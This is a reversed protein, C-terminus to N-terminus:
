KNGNSYVFRAVYDGNKIYRQKIKVVDGKSCPITAGTSASTNSWGSFNVLGNTMNQMVLLPQNATYTNGINYGVTFWGDDPATYEVVASDAGLVIDDYRDSPSAYSSILNKNDPVVNAIKEEVRGANILNANQVTEGVYYYLFLNESALEIGSNEAESTIGIAKYFRKGVDGSVGVDSGLAPNTTAYLGYSGSITNSYLSGSDTGNTLGLAKGNGVVSNGSALKSKIPLRFTEDSTNIVFDYDTYEDTSLKVSLGRKTYSTGSPLEVTTGETVEANQEVQLAEFVTVYESKNNFQGQSRLWSVNYLPAETYKCDLLSYPNNLEITNIIEAETEQGTAVQIFYKLTLKNTSNLIDAVIGSNEANQTVGISGTLSTNNGAGGTSINSGITVSNFTCSRVGSWDQGGLGFGRETTGNTLGLVKGNGVVPVEDGIAGIIYEPYNPLRVTSEDEAIVFKDVFGGINLTKEAQWNEETTFLDPSISKIQKLRTLFAQTNANIAVVQGNLIRRLGKSEDVFVSIGIDCIELGAGSNQKIVKLGTDSLNDLDVDLVSSPKNRIYDKASVDTQKWDAQIQGKASAEAWGKASHVGGISQVEEDTGDTWIQAKDVLSNVSNVASTKASNVASVATTEATSIGNLAETTKQIVSQEKATCVNESALAKQASTSAESAKATAIGAQTSAITANDTATNASNFANTESTKANIESQKANSASQNASNKSTQANNESTAANKESVLSNAASKSAEEASSQASIASLSASSASSNASIASEQAEAAKSTAINESAKAKDVYSQLNVKETDSVKQIESIATEKGSNIQNLINTKTTNASNNIESISSTKKSEINELAINKSEIITDEATQLEQQINLVAESQKETIDVIATDHLQSVELVKQITINAQEEAKTASNNAEQAKTAAFNASNEANIQAQNLSEILDDPTNESGEQVKVSRDAKRNVMQILRVIYDLSFELSKLNLKASTGYPSTQAIPINLMLTIKEDDGLTKYSSGLIPFTIYSGDANGTQNITYDINLKLTTQIGAADTHLVLLEDESNILFDFDFNINSSNGNWNNVPEKDPIM